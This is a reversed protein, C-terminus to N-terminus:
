CLTLFDGLVSLLQVAVSYLQTYGGAEDQVGALCSTGRDPRPHEKRHQFLSLNSNKFMSPISVDNRTVLLM